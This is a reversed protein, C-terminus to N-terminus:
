PNNPCAGTSRAYFSNMAQQDAVDLGFQDADHRDGDLNFQGAYQSGDPLTAFRLRGATRLVEDPVNAGTLDACTLDAGTLDAGRLDAGTLRAGNLSTCTSNVPCNLRADILVAASLDIGDMDAGSLRAGSLDAGVLQEHSLFVGTLNAERLSVIPSGAEILQTGYLFLIIEGRRRPDDDLQSLALRTRSVALAHIQPNVPQAFLGDQQVLLSGMDDLYVELVRARANENEIEQQQIERQGEIHQGIAFQGVSLIIGLLASGAMNELYRAIPVRAKGRRGLGAVVGTTAPLVTDHSDALPLGQDLTTPAIM